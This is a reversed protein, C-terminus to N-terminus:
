KSIALARPAIHSKKVSIVCFLLPKIRLCHNLATIRDFRRYTLVKGDAELRSSALEATRM